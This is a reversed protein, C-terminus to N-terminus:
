TLRMLQLTLGNGHVAVAAWYDVLPRFGWLSWNAAAEASGDISRFGVPAGPDVSVEFRDLPVSLGGGIAKVYAEKRTWCAFFGETRRPPPLRLLSDMEAPAFHRRAIDELEPIHRAAELDVGIARGRTVGLLAWGGSHSLNFEVRATGLAGAICPRGQPGYEFRIAAPATGTYGGLLFRLLGRGSEFRRRDRDFHFRSARDREDLDLAATLEECSRPPLDLPLLWLHVDREELAGAGVTAAAQAPKWATTPEEPSM